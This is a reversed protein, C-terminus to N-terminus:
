SMFSLGEKIVDTGIVVKIKRGFKNKIDNFYKGIMKGGKNKFTEGTLLLYSAQNKSKKIPKGNFDIKQIDPINSRDLLNHFNKQDRDSFFRNFGNQELMLAFTRAEAIYPIYVFILGTSSLISELIM